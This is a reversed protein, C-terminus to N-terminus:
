CNMLPHTKIALEVDKGYLEFCAKVSKVVINSWFAAQKRMNLKKCIDLQHTAWEFWCCLYGIAFETDCKYERFYSEDDKLMTKAIRYEERANFRQKLNEFM